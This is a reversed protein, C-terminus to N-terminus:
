LKTISKVIVNAYKEGDLKLEVSVRDGESFTEFLKFTQPHFQLPYKGGKDQQFLAEKKVFGTPLEILGSKKLITGKLQIKNTM